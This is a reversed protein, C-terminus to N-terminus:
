GAPAQEASDAGAPGAPPWGLRAATRIMAAYDGAHSLHVGHSSGDVEHAVAAPLEGALERAARILHPASATGWGVVVPATIREPQYPRLTGLGQLESMLTVGEARRQEQTSAPLMEWIRDGVMRRMFAEAVEEPSRGPSSSATRSRWGPTWPAPPEFVVAAPVLQPASQAAALVVNGGFSHGAVVAPRGALVSLLDDVQDTFDVSHGVHMSRAYGRRDYTVVEFDRLKQAVRGFSGGRDMAGHVLVVRVPSPGGPDLPPRTRIHLGPPM